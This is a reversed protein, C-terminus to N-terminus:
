IEKGDVEEMWNFTFRLFFKNGWATRMKIEKMFKFFIVNKKLKCEYNKGRRKVLSRCANMTSLCGSRPFNRIFFQYKQFKVLLGWRSLGGM